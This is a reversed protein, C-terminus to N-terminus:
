ESIKIKARNMRQPEGTNVYEYITCITLFPIVADKNTRIPATEGQIRRNFFVLPRQLPGFAETASVTIQQNAIKGDEDQVLTVTTKGVDTWTWRIAGETGEIEAIQRDDGHTCSSRDYTVSVDGMETQYVLAAGCHTEVDFPIDEPDVATTPKAAWAQNVDVLDPDLLSDLTAFDYPGWDMLAGGGSMSGDLFWKSDPQYEIGPRARQGRHIWTIHYPDGIAGDAILEKVRKTGPTGDHRCTCSGLLRDNTNAVALMELAGERNMAIPKECLVHRGSELARIAEDRHVFPPAAVVVLDDSSAEEALMTTNEEYIRADPAKERFTERPEPSPDAAAIEPTKEEEFHQIADVHTHAIEGAGIFYITRGM